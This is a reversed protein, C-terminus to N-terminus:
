MERKLQLRENQRKENQEGMYSRLASDSQYNTLKPGSLFNILQTIAQEKQSEPDMRNASDTRGQGTLLQGSAKSAASVWSGGLNDQLYQANDRIPVGGSQGTAMEIPIKAFPTSMGLLNKGIGVGAGDTALPNMLSNPTIGKGLSNLVEIVPSSPNIGWMGGKGDRDEWQPGIINNYYYEPVLAEPPFPNGISIPDVGNAVAFNYLAKNAIIATGPKTMLTDIVRPTIGRLWTYYLMSRRAYKSERAGLDTSTPAWKTVQDEMGRKLDELSKFKNKTAYDIAIAIRSFNDKQASMRNVNFKPNSLVSDMTKNMGQAFRGVSSDTVLYDELVGGKFGPMTGTGQLMRGLSQYSVNQLKGDIWIPVNDSAKAATTVQYGGFANRRAYKLADIPNTGFMSMDYHMAKMIGISHKYPKVSVIGVLLFNRMLDGMIAMVWHGPRITTQSAKLFNTIPDFVNNIFRGIPTDNSISRTEKLLKHVQSVQYAGEKSYYMNTDLLDFFGYDSDKRKGWKLKVHGPKPTKSGFHKMFSGAISIESAAHTLIADYRDLYDLVDAGNKINEADIWAGINELPSKTPDLVEEGVANPFYRKTFGKTRALANFHASAIGSTAFVNMDSPDVVTSFASFLEQASPPLDAIMPPQGSKRSELMMKIMDQYDDYVTAKHKELYKLVNNHFSNRMNAVTHNGTNIDRYTLADLGFRAEFFSKAPHIRHWTDMAIEGNIVDWDLPEEAGTKPNVVTPVDPDNVLADKVEDTINKDASKAANAANIANRSDKAKAAERVKIGHTIASEEPITLVGRKLDDLAKNALDRAEVPTNGVIDKKAEVLIQNIYDGASKSPDLAMQRIIEQQAETAQKIPMRVSVGHELANLKMTDNLNRLLDPDDVLKYALTRMDTFYQGKDLGSKARAPLVTKNIYSDILQSTKKYNPYASKGGTLIQYLNEVLDARSMGEYSGRILGEIASMITTIELGDEASGLLHKILIQDGNKMRSINDIVNYFSLNIPAKQGPKRALNLSPNFGLTRMKTDVAQAAKLVAQLRERQSVNGFKKRLESVIRMFPRIASFTPALGPHSVDGTDVKDTDTIYRRRTQMNLAPNGQQHIFDALAEDSINKLDRGPIAETGDAKLVGEKLVEEATLANNLQRSRVYEPNEQTIKKLFNYESGSAERVGEVNQSYKLEKESIKRAEDKVAKLFDEYNKFLDPTYRLFNIIENKTAKPMGLLDAVKEIESSPLRKVAALVDTRSTAKRTAHASDVPTWKGYEYTGKQGSGDGSDIIKPSAKGAAAPGTTGAPLDGSAAPSGVADEVTELTDATKKVAPVTLEYNDFLNKLKGVAQEKDSLVKNAKKVDDSLKIEPTKPLPTVETPLVDIDALSTDKTPTNVEDLLNEHPINRKELMRDAPSQLADVVMSLPTGQYNRVEQEPNIVQRIDEGESVKPTKSNVFPVSWKVFKGDNDARYKDIEFKAEKGAESLRNGLGQPQNAIDELSRRGQKSLGIISKDAETAGKAIGEAAKRSAKSGGEVAGRVAGKVLATGGLSLYTTPDLAVDGIFGGVGQMWKAADNEADVGAMQQGRKIIDSYTKVDNDNGGAASLGKGLGTIPSGLVEFIGSMDGKGVKEVGTMADNVLNATAYNGVSLADILQKIVPTDAAKAVSAQFGEWGGKKYAEDLAKNRRDEESTPKIFAPTKAVTSLVKPTRVSRQFNMGTLSLPASNVAAKRSEILIDSWSPM